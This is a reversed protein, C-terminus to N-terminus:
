IRVRALAGQGGRIEMAKLSKGKPVMFVLFGRVTEGPDLVSSRLKGKYARTHLDTSYNVDEGTVLKISFIDLWYQKEARNTVSVEAVVFRFGPRPNAKFLLGKVKDEWKINHVALSLKDQFQHPTSTDFQAFDKPPKFADRAFIALIVLALFIAAMSVRSIVLKLAKDHYESDMQHGAVEFQPLKPPQINTDKPEQKWKFQM